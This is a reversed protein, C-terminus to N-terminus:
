GFHRALADHLRDRVGPGEMLAEHRAGRVEELRAGPWRALRDDIAARDVIGEDTGVIMLAPLDPSPMAGVDRMERLAARLWGLSPGGLALEPHETIQRKMWAFMAADTTLLNGEFPADVPDGAKGSGPVPADGFGMRAALHSVGWALMRTRPPLSVVGWMPASFAVRRIPLGRLCSRLGILGGMSHALLHWPRPLAMAEAAAFLADADRQFDAFDTVHGLMRHRGHRETLGQGRWDIAAAAYGRDAMAAATMSYKEVYETRGPFILVTGKADAPGGWFAARVAAGDAATLWRCDPAPGAAVDQFYPAPDAGATRDASANM